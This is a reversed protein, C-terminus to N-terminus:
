RSTALLMTMTFLGSRFLTHTFALNVSKVLYPNRYAIMDCVTKYVNGFQCFCQMYM